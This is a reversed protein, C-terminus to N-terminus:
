MSQHGDVLARSSARRQREPEVGQREPLILRAGVASARPAAPPGRLRPSGRIASARGSAARRDARDRAAPRGGDPDYEGHDDEHEARREQRQALANADRGGAVVDDPEHGLVIPQLRNALVELGVHLPQAAISAAAAAAPM